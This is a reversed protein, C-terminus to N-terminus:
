LLSLALFLTLVAALVLITTGIGARLYLRSPQGGNPTLDDDAVTPRVSAPLVSAGRRAAAVPNTGAWYCARVLRVAARDIAAFAGTVGYVAAKGTYFVLPHLLVGIDRVEGIRDLLWRLPPFAAVSVVLLVVAEEIHSTSYPHFNEVEIAGDLASADTLALDTAFKWGSPLGLVAPLGFVLCAGGVSLMAATQGPTADRVRGEYEGHLFTYFGLKIFSLFTGVAGVILMWYVLENGGKLNSYKAAPDAADLLMGKSVFGNFPPTATIALAGLGFAIATIPMKRWLGGLEYLDEIDTRYIVVGVTMFLLAKFLINNFAHMMGGVAGAGPGAAVLGIGAVIYGVQAMIHYSLLARMDHQLLAFVVGYVAMAGGMYALLMSGDPFSQLLVYAGTKTTFVSLFVSAAIHPRPYTDPLWTHLGIFGCNIGIGVGALIAPADAEIGVATLPQVAGADIGGAIALGGGAALHWTIAFLVLSGGIGHAIAYRYGARVAEGGHHWVLLTSTVAMLEWWFLLTLWDGAFVVGVTAAVYSLAFATMVRPADSSYAYVVAATALIGSALAVLQSLGDVQFLVTKSFGLFEGTWHDGTPAFLAVALVWLTALAGVTHGVLRPVFPVVLAAALVVLAPPVVTLVELETM